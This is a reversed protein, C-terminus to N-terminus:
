RDYPRLGLPFTSLLENGDARVHWMQELKVGPGGADSGVFSEICIVTDAEIVGDYGHLDWDQRHYIKPYEDSMGVGHAVCAYRHAVFEDPQQFAKDSLERFGLGPALLAANHEIEELARAHRDRQRADPEGAGAIWTRSIDACYGFPGIMDTDFAVLDGAEIARDSAQQYWPNTRPGSCLMRGDIWDGDNAINTQHLIAFLENETMGPRMAEYMASMAAEAVAIAHRMCVIEESSKGSRAREVLPEADIVDMGLRQLARHADPGLREVAVRVGAGAEDLVQQAFASAQGEVDLGGDFVNVYSAARFEDVTDHDEAYAGHLIMRGGADVFLYYTPIHAQFLAYERWEVAYRLSVPNALVMLGVDHNRMQELLRERRHARVREMSVPPPTLVPISM